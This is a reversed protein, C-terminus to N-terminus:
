SRVVLNVHFSTGISFFLMGRQQGRCVAFCFETGLARLKLGVELVGVLSGWVDTLVAEGGAASTLGAEAAVGLIGSESLTADTAGDSGASGGDALVSMLKREIGEVAAAVAPTEVLPAGALGDGPKLVGGLIEESPDRGADVETAGVEVATERPEGGQHASDHPNSPTEASESHNAGEGPSVGGVVQPVEMAEGIRTDLEAKPNPRDQADSTSDIGAQLVAHM